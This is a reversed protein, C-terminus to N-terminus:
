FRESICITEAPKPVGMPNREQLNRMSWMFDHLCKVKIVGKPLSNWLGAVQEM